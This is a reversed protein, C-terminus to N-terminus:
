LLRSLTILGTRLMAVGGYMHEPTDASPILISSICTEIEVADAVGKRAIGIVLHTCQLMAALALVRHYIIDNHNHKPM